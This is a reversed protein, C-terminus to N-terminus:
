LATPDMVDLSLRAEKRPKLSLPSGLAAAGRTEWRGPVMSSWLVNRVRVRPSLVLPCSWSHM